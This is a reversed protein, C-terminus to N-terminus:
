KYFKKKVQVYQLDLNNSIIQSNENSDLTIIQLVQRYDEGVIQEQIIDCYIIGHKVLNFSNPFYYNKNLMIQNERFLVEKCIGNCHLVLNKNSTLKLKNNKIVGKLRIFGIDYNKIFEIKKSIEDFYTFILDHIRNPELLQNLQRKKFLNTLNNIVSIKQNEPISQIIKWIKSHCPYYEVYFDSTVVDHFDDKKIIVFKDIKHWRDANVNQAIMNNFKENYELPILYIGDPNDSGIDYFVPLFQVQNLDQNPLKTIGNNYIENYIFNNIILQQFNIVLLESAIKDPINKADSLGINFESFNKIFPFLRNDHQLYPFMDIYNKIIIEGYDNKINPTCTISAIAV